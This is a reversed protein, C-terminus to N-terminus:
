ILRSPRPSPLHPDCHGAVRYRRFLFDIDVGGRYTKTSKTSQSRLRTINCCPSASLLPSLGNGGYEKELLVWHGDVGNTELPLKHPYKEKTTSYYYEQRCFLLFGLVGPSNQYFSNYYLKEILFFVATVFISTGM